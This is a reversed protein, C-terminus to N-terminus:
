MGFYIGDVLTNCPVTNLRFVRCFIFRGFLLGKLKWQFIFQSPLIGLRRLGMLILLRSHGLRAGAMRLNPSFFFRFFFM